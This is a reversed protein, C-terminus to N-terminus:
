PSRLIKDTAVTVKEYLKPSGGPPSGSEFSMRAVELEFEFIDSELGWNAKGSGHKKLKPAMGNRSLHRDMEIISNTTTRRTRAM